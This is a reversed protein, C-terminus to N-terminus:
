KVGGMSFKTNFKSAYGEKRTGFIEVCYASIKKDVLVM